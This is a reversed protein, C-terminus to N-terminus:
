KIFENFYCTSFMFSLKNISYKMSFSLKNSAIICTIKAPQHKKKNNINQTRSSYVLVFNRLITLSVFKRRNYPRSATKNSVSRSCYLFYSEALGYMTLNDMSSSSIASVPNAMIMDDDNASYLLYM